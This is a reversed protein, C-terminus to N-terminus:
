PLVWFKPLDEFDVMPLVVNVGHEGRFADPFTFEM